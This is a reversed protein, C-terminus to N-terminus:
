KSKRNKDSSKEPPATSIPKDDNTSATPLPEKANLQTIVDQTLDNQGNTYLVVPTFYASQAGTDIVFTFDGGKAKESIVERIEGVIKDRMRRQQEDLRTKAENRYQAVSKEIESIEMVKTEASKKRKDREDSSVAQDNASDILKKYEEKAKQYDDMMGKLVKEAEAGTEKLMSDAQKTKYYEEFVKKMDVTAIKLPSQATASVIGFAAIALATRLIRTKLISISQM